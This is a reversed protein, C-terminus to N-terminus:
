NLTLTLGLEETVYKVNRECSEDPTESYDLEIIVLGDFDNELLVETIGQLDVHGQGLECFADYREVGQLSELDGKIDKIHLYPMHDIYTRTIDVPDDGNVQFHAPDLCLGVLDTDVESMFHDLQDRTEIFTDLHPHYATRLGLKRNFAAIEEIARAFAKNEEDTHLKGGAQPPGGGCVFYECGFGKLFRALTQMKDREYPWLRPNIWVGDCYLSSIELGYEQQMRSFLALRRLLDIDTVISPPGVDGLTLHRRAFDNGLSDGFLAEFWKIGLRSLVPFAHEVGVGLDWTIVEYGIEFKQERTM